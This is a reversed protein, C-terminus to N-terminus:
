DGLSFYLWSHGTSAMEHAAMVAGRFTCFPYTKGFAEVNWGGPVKRVRARSV